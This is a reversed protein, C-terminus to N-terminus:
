LNVGTPDDTQEDRAADVAKTFMSLNRRRQLAADEDANASLHAPLRRFLGESAAAAASLGRPQVSRGGAGEGVPGSASGRSTALEAATPGDPPTAPVSTALAASRGLRRTLLGPLAPPAGAASNTADGIMAAAIDPRPGSSQQGGNRANPLLQRISRDVPESRRERKPLSAPGADAQRDFHYGSQHAVPTTIEGPTAPTPVPPVPGTPVSDTIPMSDRLLADFPDELHAPTTELTEDDLAELAMEAWAMDPAADDLIPLAKAGSDFRTACLAGPRHIM